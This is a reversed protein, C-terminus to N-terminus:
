EEGDKLFFWVQHNRTKEQEVFGMAMLKLLHVRVSPISIGVLEALERARVKQRKGMYQTM